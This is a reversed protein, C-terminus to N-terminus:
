SDGKILYYKGTMRDRRISSVAGGFYEDIAKQAGPFKLHDMTALYEDFLVVGGEAVRPYLSELVTLYSQYLDVDIHLLAISRGRYKLLSQQFFGQVLTVQTNIFHSDLGAESLLTLVDAISTGGWDGKKPNRTSRDEESPEPFGEFSDFGWLKRGKLEDKVLFAFSMLSHGPGVGCEVIDGEIDSVLDYVRKFYLLRAIAAHRM